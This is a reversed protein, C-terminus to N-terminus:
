YYPLEKLVKLARKNDPVSLMNAVVLAKITAVDSKEVAGDLIRALQRHKLKPTFSKLMLEVAAAKCYPIITWKDIVMHLMKLLWARDETTNNLLLFRFANLNGTEIALEVLHENPQEFIRDFWTTIYSRVRTYGALKMFANEYAGQSVKYLLKNFRQTYLLINYETQTLEFFATDIAPQSVVGERMLWNFIDDGYNSSNVLAKDMAENSVGSMLIEWAVVKCRNRMALQLADDKAVQSVGSVLIELAMDQDRAKLALHLSRDRAEQSRDNKLLLIVKKCKKRVDGDGIIDRTINAFSKCTSAVRAFKEIGVYEIVHIAIDRSLSRPVTAVSM